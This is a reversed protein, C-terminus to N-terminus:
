QNGNNALTTSNTGIMNTFFQSLGKDQAVLQYHLENNYKASSLHTLVCINFHLSCTM